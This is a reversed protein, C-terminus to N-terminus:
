ESGGEHEARAQPTAADAAPTVSEKKIGSTKGPALIMMMRRGEMRPTSEVVARDAVASYVRQLIEQGIAPHVIERGRFAITVKAKNNEALFRKVNGLKVAFDHSDTKPRFKVEKLEIQQQKKRAENAKRKQEYKFKGYDMLKCVPPKATPSVEVLDLGAEQARQLAEQTPLVGLQDGKDGIVRVEPVRIRRNVRWDDNAPKNNFRGGRPRGFGSVPAM